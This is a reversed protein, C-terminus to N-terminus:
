FLGDMRELVSGWPVVGTIGQAQRDYGANDDEKIYAAIRALPLSEGWNENFKM